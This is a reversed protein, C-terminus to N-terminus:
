VARRGYAAVRGVGILIASGHCRLGDPAPPCTSSPKSPHAYTFNGERNHDHYCPCPPPKGHQPIETLFERYFPTRLNSVLLLSRDNGQGTKGDPLMQAERIQMGPVQAPNCGRLPDSRRLAAAQNDGEDDNEAARRATMKQQAEWKKTAERDMMSASFPCPGIDRSNDPTWAARDSLGAAITSLYLDQMAEDFKLLQERNLPKFATDLAASGAETLWYFMQRRTDSLSDVWKRRIAPLLRQEQVALENAADQESVERGDIRCRSDVFELGLLTSERVVAAM